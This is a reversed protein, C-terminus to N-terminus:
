RVYGLEELFGDLRGKAADREGEIDRLTVHYKGWWGEVKAVVGQRHAAVRRALEQRLDARLIDLVLTESHTADLEEQAEELRDAFGRQLAKLRTKAASLEKKLAKIEAESLAEEEDAEGEGEEDGSTTAAKITGALEAVRGEVETIQDLFEPLLRKVLKHDLPAGKGDGEELATLITTVWSTVVGGFGGAMLAKLDFVVDGWWTAVAGSVQFRDLLPLAGPGSPTLAEVFSAQMNARLEM